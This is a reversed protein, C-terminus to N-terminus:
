ASARVYAPHPSIRVPSSPAPSPACRKWDAGDICLKFGARTSSYDTRWTISAGDTVSVGSPGSSGHYRTSGITLYDYSSHYDSYYTSFTGETSVTGVGGVTITCSDRNGYNSPYNRSTVCRGGGM